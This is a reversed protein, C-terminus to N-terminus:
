PRTRRTAGLDLDYRVDIFGPPEIQTLIAKLRRVKTEYDDEWPVEARARETRGWEITREVREGRATTPPCSLVLRVEGGSRTEPSAPFRGVDVRIVAVRGRFDRYIRESLRAAAVAEEVRGSGDEWVEGLDHPPPETIGTVTPLRYPLGELYAEYPASPLLFGDDSLLRTRRVQTRGAAAHWVSVQAVPVRLRACVEARNPYLVRVSQVYRVLPHRAIHNGILGEADPDYISVSLPPFMKPQLTYQIKTDAWSPLQVFAVQEGHIRFEDLRYAYARAQRVVIGGLLFVLAAVTLRVLVRGPTSGFLHQLRERRTAPQKRRAM